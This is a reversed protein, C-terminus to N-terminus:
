GPLHRTLFWVTIPSYFGTQSQHTSAQRHNALLVLVHNTLLLWISVDSLYDDLSKCSLNATTNKELEEICETYASKAQM